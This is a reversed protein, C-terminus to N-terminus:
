FSMQMMMLTTLTDDAGKLIDEDRRKTAVFVYMRDEGECGFVEIGGEEEEEEEKSEEGDKTEEREKRASRCREIRVVEMEFFRGFEEWFPSEKWPAREKYGFIVKTEGVRTIEKLTQLLPPYLEPFYVLDSAIVYDIPTPHIIANAHSSNGWALPEVHVYACAASGAAAVAAASVGSGAGAEITIAGDSEVPRRRSLHHENVNKQMLPVILPSPASPRSPM